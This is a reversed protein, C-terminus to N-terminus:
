SLLSLVRDLRDIVADPHIQPNPEEHRFHVAQVARMGLKQPGQVDEILRDGVFLIAEAPVGLRNIMEQYILLAPKRWGIECSLITHDFFELLGVQRINAYAVEPLNCFNSVLGLLYGRRHLESLTAIAEPAVSVVREYILRHELSIVQRLFEPDEAQAIGASRFAQQVLPFFDVEQETKERWTRAMASQVHEKWAERLRALEPVTSEQGPNILQRYIEEWIDDIAGATFNGQILTDGLDFIVAQINEFKEPM